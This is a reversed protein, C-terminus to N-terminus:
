ISITSFQKIQQKIKSKFINIRITIEWIIRMWLIYIFRLSKKNLLKLHISFSYHVRRDTRNSFLHTHIPLIGVQHVGPHGHGMRSQEVLCDESWLNMKAAVSLELYTTPKCRTVNIMWDLIKKKENYLVKSEWM